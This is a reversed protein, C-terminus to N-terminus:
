DLGFMNIGEASLNLNTNTNTNIHYSTDLAENGTLEFKLDRLITGLLNNGKFAKSNIEKTVHPLRVGTGWRRDLTMEYFDTSPCQILKEMLDGNQLFKERVIEKMITESRDNWGEPDPTNGGLSKTYYPNAFGPMDTALKKYGAESVKTVQYAQEASTYLQDKYTFLAGYMNSCFVHESHFALSLDNDFLRSKANEPRCKDPLLTLEDYGYQKGDIYITSGKLSCEYKNYKLLNFCAKVLNRKRRSSDNQDRNLWLYKNNSKKKIDAAKSLISDRLTEEDLVAIISRPKKGRARGIRYASKIQDKKLDEITPSICDFVTQRIDENVTENIGDIVLNRSRVKNDLSEISKKNQNIEFTNASVSAQM